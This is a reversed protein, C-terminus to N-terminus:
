NGACAIRVAKVEAIESTTFLERYRPLRKMVILVILAIGIGGVLDILYHGGIVPTSAIMAAAYLTAPWFLRTKRWCWTILIGAATHFSPFCVLGKMDMLDIVPSAGRMKEIYAIHYVGPTHNNLYQLPAHGGLLYDVPGNAPFFMGIFVCIWCTIFYAGLFFEARLYRRFGALALFTLLSFFALLQYAGLLFWTLYYNNAVLNYYAKWDLILAQDARTLLTDTNPFPFSMTAYNFVSMLVWVLRIFFMGEAIVIVMSLSQAVSAISEPPLNRSLYFHIGRIGAILIAIPLLTTVYPEVSGPKITIGNLHIIILNALALLAVAAYLYLGPFINKQSLSYM